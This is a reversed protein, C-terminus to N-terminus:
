LDVVAAAGARDTITISGLTGWGRGGNLSSLLVTQLGGVLGRGTMVGNSAATDLGLDQLTSTGYLSTLQFQGTGSTLDTVVLRKGDASIEGRLKDPAAQNITALVDELTSEERHSSGGPILANFDITGTTGDRLQFSIEPLSYHFGVGMGDNLQSLQTDGNVFLISEGDASSAAVDIAALGLSAAASGGGIEQVRLNAFSLGTRDTLRIHDGVAEARVNIRTNTNIAALVDELTQVTTLDIDASSGSRDTIRIIGREFGAGGQLQDLPTSRALDAGFRFTIAGGGLAATGSEVGSALWQENQVTGVPTFVYSGIPPTGTVTATLASENSSGAIRKDYLEPKGLNKVVYQTALVLASLETIAAREQDIQQTVAELNDRPRAELAILKDVTDGIPVGSVLGISSQIRGM